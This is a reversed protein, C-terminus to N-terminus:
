ASSPAEQKSEPQGLLQVVEDWQSPRWIYSQVGSTRRLVELWAVQDDTPKGKETKLEAFILRGRGAIVLDPWGADGSM